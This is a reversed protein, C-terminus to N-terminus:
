QDSPYENQKMIVGYVAVQEIDKNPLPFAFKQIDTGPSFTFTKPKDTFVQNTTFEYFERTVTEPLYTTAEGYGAIRAMDNWRFFFPMERRRENLIKRVADEVSTFTLNMVSAGVSVDFRHARLQNITTEADKFNGARAQCEAKILYMESVSPGIDERGEWVGLKEAPTFTGESDTGGRFSSETYSYNDIFYYKYRLDLERTAEDAGFLAIFDDSPVQWLSSPMHATRKYYNEKWEYYGFTQSATIPYKVVEKTEVGEEEYVIVEFEMEAAYSMETAYNVLRAEGNNDLAKQAYKLANAFDGMALYVRAYLAYLAPASARWQMVNGIEAVQLPQDKLYDEALQLENLIFDYVEGVSSRNPFNELNTDKKLPVGLASRNSGNNGYPLAYNTILYFHNLARWYHADAGTRAKEEKTGSVEPIYELMTNALYIQNYCYKWPGYEYQTESLINMSWTMPMQALAQTYHSSERKQFTKLPVYDDSMLIQAEVVLSQATKDVLFGNLYEIKTPIIEQQKSPIEELMDECGSVIPFILLIAFYVSNLYKMKKM